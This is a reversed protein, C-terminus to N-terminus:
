ILNVIVIKEEESFGIKLSESRFYYEGGVMEYDARANHAAKRILNRFAKRDSCPTDALERLSGPAVSVRTTTARTQKRAPKFQDALGQFNAKPKSPATEPYRQHAYRDGLSGVASKVLIYGSAISNGDVLELGEPLEEPTFQPDWVEYTGDLREIILNQSIFQQLTLKAM